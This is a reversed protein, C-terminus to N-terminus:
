QPGAKYQTLRPPSADPEVLWVQRDKFHELLPRIDLGPIERAWVVKGNDLDAGNYVWERLVSHDPGYRVIVLHKGPMAELQRNFQVRYALPDPKQFTFATGSQGFPGLLIAFLVVVRSMALGVPRGSVRWQRLNRIGVVMLAFVSATMPALYHAWFWTVLLLAGFGLGLQLTWLRVGRIRRRFAAIGLALPLCLAPGLFFVLFTKANMALKLAVGKVSRTENEVHLERLYVNYYTELQPNEFHVVPRLQQWAFPPTGSLHSRENAAYPSEFANGTTRLNYYAGFAGSAVGVIALPFVVRPLKVGWQPSNKSFVWTLLVVALPVSLLFGEFPRSNVLVFLGLGLIWSDRARCRRLIRPLAGVVLAGGTAAVAGGWYSNMWYSFIGLKAVVLLGGLLAWRPAFWGQLMWVIAGCMLGVSLVVGFWPDRLLDGIALVAAQGPPYKSVYAPTQNVHITDFFVAMPNAPNALRGHALTDGGLLYSFEDHVYPVPHAILWFLSGRILIPACAALLITLRRRSALKVGWREIASFFQDGFGPALWAGALCLAFLLSRMLEGKIQWLAQTM